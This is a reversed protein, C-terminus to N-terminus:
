MKGGTGNVFLVNQRMQLLSFHRRGSLLLLHLSNHQVLGLVGGGGEEEM